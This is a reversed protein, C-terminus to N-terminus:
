AAQMKSNSKLKWLYILLSGAGFCVLLLKVFWGIFPLKPLLVVLIVGLILSGILAPAAGNKKMLGLLYDGLFIASFVYGIYLLILYLALLILSVPITFILVLLIIVAIPAAILVLFGIGTSKLPQRRALPLYERVTNKMFVIILVGVIFLSILSWYFGGKLFFPKRKEITLELNEPVNGAQKRDLPKRLTLRTGLAAHYDPGFKVKRTKLEVGEGVSGNLFAYGSGGKISGRVKGGEMNLEGTWVFLNGRIVAKPTILVEGGFALVDGKVEGDVVLTRGFFLVMDGVSGHISLEKCFGLVDDGVKGNVTLTESGALVDSRVVGDIYVHRSGALLDGALSDGQAVRVVETGRYDASQLAGALLLILIFGLTSFRKM